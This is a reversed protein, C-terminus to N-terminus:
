KRRNKLERQQNLSKIIQEVGSFCICCCFMFLAMDAIKNSITFVQTVLFSVLLGVAVFVLGGLVPPALLFAALSFSGDERFAPSFEPFQHQRM